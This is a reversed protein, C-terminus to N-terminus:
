VVFFEHSTVIVFRVHRSRCTPLVRPHESKMPRTPRAAEEHREGREAMGRHVGLLARLPKGDHALAARTARLAVAGRRERGLRAAAVQAAAAAVVVAPGGGRNLHRCIAPQHLMRVERRWRRPRRGLVRGVEVAGRARRVGVARRAHLVSAGPAAREERARGVRPVLAAPLLVVDRVILQEVAEAVRARRVLLDHDDSNSNRSHHDYQTFSCTAATTPIRIGM